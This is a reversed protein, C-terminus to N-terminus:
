QGISSAVSHPPPFQVVLELRTRASWHRAIPRVDSGRLTSFAVFKHTSARMSLLNVLSVVVRPSLQQNIFPAVRAHIM